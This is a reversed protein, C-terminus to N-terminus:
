SLRLFIDPFLHWEQISYKTCGALKFAGHRRRILDSLVSCPVESRQEIWLREPDEVTRQQRSDAEARRVPKKKNLNLDSSVSTTLGQETNHDHVMNTHIQDCTKSWQGEPLELGSGSTVEQCLCGSKQKLTGPVGHSEHVDHTHGRVICWVINKSSFSWLTESGESYKFTPILNKVREKVVRRKTDFGDRTNTM